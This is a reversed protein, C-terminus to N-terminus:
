TTAREKDYDILLLIQELSNCVAYNGRWKLSFDLEDKTLRQQSKSKNGDKLEILYNSNMYGVIIDPAGKGLQHTHLVSIGRKRLEQVIEKQNADVRAKKRM